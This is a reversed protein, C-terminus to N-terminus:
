NKEFVARLGNARCETDPDYRLSLFRNLYDLATEYDATYYQCLDAIFLYLYPVRKEQEALGTLISLAEEYREKQFALIGRLYTATFSSGTKEARSLYLETNYWDKEKLAREAEEILQDRHYMSIYLIDETGAYFFVVSEEEYGEKKATVRYEAGNKIGPVSFHGNIDSVAALNDGLYIMVHNVPKNDRDYIMGYLALPEKKEPGSACSFLFV